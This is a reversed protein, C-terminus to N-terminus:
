GDVMESQRLVTCVDKADILCIRETRSGSQHFVMLRMLSNMFHPYLPMTRLSHDDLDM